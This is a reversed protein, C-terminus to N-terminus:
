IISIQQNVKKLFIKWVSVLMASISSPKRPNKLRSSMAMMRILWFTQIWFGKRSLIEVKSEVLINTEPNGSKWSLGSKRPVTIRHHCDGPYLWLKLENDQADKGIM